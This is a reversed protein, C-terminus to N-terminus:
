ARSPQPSVMLAVGALALLSSSVTVITLQEGLLLAGLGLAIIPAAYSVTNAATSLGSSNLWTFLGFAGISGGLVAFAFTAWFRGDLAFLDIGALDGTAVAAIGVVPTAALLQISLSVMPDAPVDSHSGYLSAAALTMAFLLMVAVGLYNLSETSQNALMLLLLGAFGLGVGLLQRLTLPEHVIAWAFLALFLPASSGLVASVGGPLMSVGLTILLQAGGMLMVGLIAATRVQRPSPWGAVAIRWLSVPVMVMAACAIRAFAVLVPSQGDTIVRLALYNAGTLFWMVVLALILLAGTPAGRGHVTAQDDTM